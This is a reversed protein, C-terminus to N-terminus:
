RRPHCCPTPRNRPRWPVALTHPTRCCCVSTPNVKQGTRIFRNRRERFVMKLAQLISVRRYNQHGAEEKRHRAKSGAYCKRKKERKTEKRPKCRESAKMKPTTQRGQHKLSPENAGHHELTSSRGRRTRCACKRAIGFVNFPELRRHNHASAKQAPPPPRVGGAQDIKQGELGLVGRGARRMNPKTDRCSATVILHRHVRGLRGVVRPVQAASLHSSYFFLINKSIKRPTGRRSRYTQAFITTPINTTSGGATHQSDRIARPPKNSNQGQRPQRVITGGAKKNQEPNTPYGNLFPKSTTGLNEYTEILAAPHPPTM